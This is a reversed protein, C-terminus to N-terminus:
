PFYLEAYTEASRYERATTQEIIGADAARDLWAQIRAMQDPGAKFRVVAAVADAPARYDPGRDVNIRIPRDYAPM